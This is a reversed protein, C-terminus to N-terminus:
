GEEVASELSSNVDILAKIAQDFTFAEKVKAGFGLKESLSKSSEPVTTLTDDIALLLLQEGSLTGVHVKLLKDLNAKNYLNPGSYTSTDIEDETSEDNALRTKLFASSDMRTPAEPGFSDSRRPLGDSKVTELGRVLMPFMEVSPKRGESSRSAEEKFTPGREFPSADGPEESDDRTEEMTFQPLTATNSLEYTPEVTGFQVNDYESLSSDSPVSDEEEIRQM